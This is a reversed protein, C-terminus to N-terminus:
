RHQAMDYMEFLVILYLQEKRDRPIEINRKNIRYELSRNMTALSKRKWM